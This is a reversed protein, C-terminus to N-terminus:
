RNIIQALCPFSYTRSFKKTIRAIEVKLTEVNQVNTLLGSVIM